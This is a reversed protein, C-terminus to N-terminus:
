GTRTASIERLRQELREAKDDDGGLFRPAARYYQILDELAQANFPDLAVADEFAAKSKKAFKVANVWGAREALRGYAKGLLHTCEACEPAATRLPELIEIAAEFQGAAFAKSAADFAPPPGIDGDAMAATFIFVAFVVFIPRM